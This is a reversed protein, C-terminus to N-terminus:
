EGFLYVLAVALHVLYEMSDHHLMNLMATETLCCTFGQLSDCLQMENNVPIDNFLLNLLIISNKTAIHGNM